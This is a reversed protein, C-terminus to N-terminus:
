FSKKLGVSIGAEIKEGARKSIFLEVNVESSGNYYSVGIRGERKSLQSNRHLSPSASASSNGHTDARAKLRIAAEKEQIKVSATVEVRTGTDEKNSSNSTGKGTKTGGKKVIFQHGNKSM